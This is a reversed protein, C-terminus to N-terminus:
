IKINIGNRLLVCRDDFIIGNGNMTSSSVGNKLVGYRTYRPVWVTRVRFSSFLFFSYWLEYILKMKVGMCRCDEDLLFSM